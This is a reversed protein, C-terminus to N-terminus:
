VLSIRAKISDPCSLVIDIVTADGVEIMQMAKEDLVLIECGPLSSYTEGDNLVVITYTQM